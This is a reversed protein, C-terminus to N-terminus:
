NVGEVWERIEKRLARLEDDQYRESFARVSLVDDDSLPEDFKLAVIGGNKGQVSRVVEGFGELGGIELIATETVRLTQELGLQAGSCSLDILICRSTDYRTILRAPISLRLRASGRRGTTIVPAHRVFNHAARRRSFASQASM